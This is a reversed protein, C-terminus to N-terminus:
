KSRLEKWAPLANNPDVYPSLVSDKSIELITIFKNEVDLRHRVATVLYKGSNYVDENKGDVTRTLEPVSFTIINGVTMKPDGPISIKYRIANIHAIQATRLPVTTEINIDKIDPQHAKIYPNYTTEGTNTTVVKLVSDYATNASQGFRNETNSLLGHDNLKKASGFYKKYDFDKIDYRMRLPDITIIRNAYAGSNIMNLSDFNSIPEYTLVNTKESSLDQVRADDPMTLNKPEYKFNGYIQGDYLSQLSKFNYGFYNEYFLYPSGKTQSSNSIAQTCLWNIAEFPKFNPIIIDRTGQTEECNTALFKTNATGLQNMVIDIVIDSVKKNKYSKSVKKQESLVNEESCFHLLYNENQDNLMHRNDVKFIRFTKEIKSTEDDPKSFGLIIYEHGNFSMNSLFGVADNVLISGSIYNSYLDEFYNFEMIAHRFDYPLGVSTIVKCYDLSYDQPNLIINNDGAM